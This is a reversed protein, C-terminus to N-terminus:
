LGIEPALPASEPDSAAPPATHLIPPPISRAFAYAMVPTLNEGAAKLRATEVESLHDKDVSSYDPSVRQRIDHALANFETASRDLVDAIEIPLM